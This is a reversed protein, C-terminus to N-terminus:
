TVVARAVSGARHERWPLLVARAGSNRLADSFQVGRGANEQDYLYAGLRIAAEGHVADPAGPAHRTVAETAYALLRTAEATEEATDGMRLAVALAAVDLTVAM